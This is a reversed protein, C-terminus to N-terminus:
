HARDLLHVGHACVYAAHVHVCVFARAHVGICVSVCVCARVCVRVCVRECTYLSRARSPFGYRTSDNRILLIMGAAIVRHCIYIYM